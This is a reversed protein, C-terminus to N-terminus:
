AAHVAHHKECPSRSISVPVVMPIGVNACGPKFAFFEGNSWYHNGVAAGCAPCIAAGNRMKVEVYRM